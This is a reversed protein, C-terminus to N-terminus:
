AAPRMSSRAELARVAGLLRAPSIPKELRADGREDDRLLHEDRGSALLVATRRGRRRRVARILDGGNMRPMLYDTILLDPDFADLAELAQQGDQCVLVDFGAERLTVEHIHALLVDDEAVLIKRM